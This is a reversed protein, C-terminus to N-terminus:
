KIVIMKRIGSIEKTQIKYFYVGSNLKETNYIVSHEGKPKDENVLTSVLQGKINYIDIKVRSNKKLSYKIATSNKAPNPFNSIIDEPNNGPIDISVGQNFYYVGM